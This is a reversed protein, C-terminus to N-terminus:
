SEVMYFSSKLGILSIGLKVIIQKVLILIYPIFL